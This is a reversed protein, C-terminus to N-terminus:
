HKKIKQPTLLFYIVISFLSFILFLIFLLLAVNHDIFSILNSFFNLFNKSLLSFFPIPPPVVVMKEKKYELSDLFNLLSEPTSDSSPHAYYIQDDIIGFYPFIKIEFKNCLYNNNKLCNIKLVQNRDKISHAVAEFAKEMEQCSLSSNSFFLFSIEKDSKEWFSSEDVVEIKGEENIKQPSISPLSHIEMKFETKKKTEKEEREEEM